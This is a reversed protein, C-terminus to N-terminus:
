TADLFNRVVYESYEQHTTNKDVYNLESRVRWTGNIYNDITRPNDSTPYLGNEVNSTVDNELAYKRRLNSLHVHICRIYECLNRLEIKNKHASITFFYECNFTGLEYDCEFDPLRSDFIWADTSNYDLFNLDDYNMNTYVTDFKYDDRWVPPNKGRCLTGNPMLDKRTLCVLRKGNRYDVKKLLAVTEDFYCDNNTVIYVSDTGFDHEKAEKIAMKYTLRQETTIFKINKSKTVGIENIMKERCTGKEIQLFIILNDIRKNNINSKVSKLLEKKREPNKEDYYQMILVIKKYKDCPLNKPLPEADVPVVTSSLTNNVVMLQKRKNKLIDLTDKIKHKREKNEENAFEVWLKEIKLKMEEIQLYVDYDNPINM